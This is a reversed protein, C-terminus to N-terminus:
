RWGCGQGGDGLPSFAVHQHLLYLMPVGHRPLRLRGLHLVPNAGLPVFRTVALPHKTASVPLFNRWAIYHDARRPRSATDDGVWFSPLHREVGPLPTAPRAGGHRKMRERVAHHIKEGATTRDAAMSPDGIGSRYEFGAAASSLDTPCRPVWPSGSNKKPAYAAKNSVSCGQAM